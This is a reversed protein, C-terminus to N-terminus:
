SLGFFFFDHPGGSWAEVDLWASYEHFFVRTNPAILKTDHIILQEFRVLGNNSSEVSCLQHSQSSCELFFAGVVVGPM